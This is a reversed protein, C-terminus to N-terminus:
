VLSAEVFGLGGGLEGAVGRHQGADHWCHIADLAVVDHSRKSTSTAGVNVWM